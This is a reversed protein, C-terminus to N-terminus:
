PPELVFTTAIDELRVRIDLPPQLPELWQCLDLPSQSPSTPSWPKTQTHPNPTMDQSRGM